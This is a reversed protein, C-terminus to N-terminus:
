PRLAAEIQDLHEGRHDARLATVPSEPDGPHVRDPPLSAMRRDTEEAVRLALRAVVRPQIAHILPWAADNIWDVDEPEDDSPTFAIGRELKAGLVSARGDWFAMHGLVDAVTWTEHVRANLQDETLGEVLARMRELERANEELYSRQESV